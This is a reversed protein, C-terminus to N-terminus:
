KKSSLARYLVPPLLDKALGRMSKKQAADETGPRARFDTSRSQELVEGDGLATYYYLALSRRFVGDPCTLPDPHGHFSDDNTNFVVARGIVPLVSKACASMDKEWLELSGGYNEDWTDNLFLILNMRRRLKLKNHMNFDAHISLHGGRITEHLGGGLQYPDPILGEIGTMEELFRLFPASNLAAILNTIYPSEIKDLQYGTKFKSHSDNFKGEARQPFEALVRQLLPVPLFNEIVIHDYPDNGVYTSNLSKGLAVCEDTNLFVTDERVDPNLRAPGNQPDASKAASMTEAM